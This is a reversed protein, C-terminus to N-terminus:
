KINLLLGSLKLIIEEHEFCLQELSAQLESAEGINIEEVCDIKTRMLDVLTNFDM